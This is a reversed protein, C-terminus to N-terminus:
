RSIRRELRVKVANKANLQLKSGTYTKSGAVKMPASSLASPLYIVIAERGISIKGPNHISFSFLPNPLTIVGNEFTSIEYGNTELYSQIQSATAGPNNVALYAEYNGYSLQGWDDEWGVFQLDALPFNPDSCDVIFYGPEDYENQSALPSNGFVDAVRYVGPTETSEQIEATYTVREPTTNQWISCAPGDTFGGMGLSKWGKNPDEVGIKMEYTEYDDLQIKGNADVSVAVLTYVGPESVPFQLTVNEQGGKVTQYEYSGNKLGELADGYNNTPANAVRVETVDSGSSVTANAFINGKPDIFQGKYAVEVTYDPYGSLKFLEQLEGSWSFSGDTETERWFCSFLTIVGTNPNFNSMQEYNPYMQEIESDPYGLMSYFDYVSSWMFEFGSSTLGTPYVEAIKAPHTGDPFTTSLDILIQEDNGWLNLLKVIVQSPDGQSVCWDVHIDFPGGTLFDTFYLATTETIDVPSKRCFDFSYTADGYASAGEVTITAPYLEDTIIENGDYTVTITTSHERPGFTVSTPFTFIGSEDEGQITYTSPDDLSTRSITIDVSNGTQPLEVVSPADKPFFAGPSQAGEVYKNDDNCSSFAFATALALLSYKILKM